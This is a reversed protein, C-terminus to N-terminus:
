IRRKDNQTINKFVYSGKLFKDVIILYNTKIPSTIKRGYKELLPIIDDYWTDFYYGNNSNYCRSNDIIEDFKRDDFGTYLDIEVSSFAVIEYVKNNFKITKM